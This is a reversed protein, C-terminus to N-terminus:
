WYQKTFRSYTAGKCAQGEVVYCWPKDSDKKICGSITSGAYQWHSLCHCNHTTVEFKLPTISTTTEAEGAAKVTQLTTTATPTTTTVPGTVTAAGTITTTAPPTTTTIAGKVSAAGTITTSAVSKGAPNPTSTPMTTTAPNVSKVLQTTTATPTTM